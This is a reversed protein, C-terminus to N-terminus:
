PDLTLQVAVLLGYVSQASCHLCLPPQDLSRRRNREDPTERARKARDKQRRRELRTQRNSEQQTQSPTGRAANIPAREIVSAGIISM